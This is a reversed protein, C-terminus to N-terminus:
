LRQNLCVVTFMISAIIVRTSDIGCKTHVTLLHWVLSVPPHHPCFFQVLNLCCRSFMVCTLLHVTKGWSIQTDTKM